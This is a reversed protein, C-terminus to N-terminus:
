LPMSRPNFRGEIPTDSAITTSIDQACRLKQDELAAFDHPPDVMRQSGLSPTMGDAGETWIVPRGARKRLAKMGAELSTKDVFVVLATGGARHLDRDWTQPLEYTIPDVTESKDRKRKKPNTERRVVAPTNADQACLKRTGQRDIFDVSEIRGGGLEAFLRRFHAETADIPVNVAFLTRADDPTPIKPENRRLYLYHVAPKKYSALSQLKLPLIAFGSISM